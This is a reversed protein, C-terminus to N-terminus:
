DTGVCECGSGDSTSQDNGPCNRTCALGSGASHTDAVFGPQCHDCAVGTTSNPLSHAAAPCVTPLFEVTRLAASDTVYVNDATMEPSFEHAGHYFRFLQPGQQQVGTLVLLADPIEGPATLM